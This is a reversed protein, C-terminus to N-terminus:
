FNIIEYNKGYVGRYGNKEFTEQGSADVHGDFFAANSKQNHILHPARMTNSSITNEYIPSQFISTPQYCNVSNKTMFYTGECLLIMDSPKGKKILRNWAVANGGINLNEGYNCSMAYGLVQTASFNVGYKVNRKEEYTEVSHLMASCLTTQFQSIYSTMILMGTWRIEGAAIDPFKCGTAAKVGYTKIYDPATWGNFDDAYLMNATVCDKVNNVCNVAQARARANQLAPLLIAALIAVIAIVVLLEIVTFCSRAYAGKPVLVNDGDMESM